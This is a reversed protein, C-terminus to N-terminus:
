KDYGAEGLDLIDSVTNCDNIDNMTVNLNLLNKFAAVIQMIMLSDFDALDLLEANEVLEPCSTRTQLNNLFESRNM